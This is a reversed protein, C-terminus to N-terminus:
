KVCIINFVVLVFCVSSVYLFSYPFSCVCGLYSNILSLLLPILLMSEWPYGRNYGMVWVLIQTKDTVGRENFAVLGCLGCALTM